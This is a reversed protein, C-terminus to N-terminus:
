KIAILVHAFETEFNGEVKMGALLIERQINEPTDPYIKIKYEGMDIFDSENKDLSVVFRGGCSLLLSIKSVLSHKDEFHMFALSSYIVDFNKEFGHTMFDGCILQMNNYVALNLKAREITKPSIDIGTFTGCLPAAKLAIRGTGIGIELVSKEKDLMLAEIFGDGDWKNMYEKLPETDQVPDNNKDILSDYHETVTM